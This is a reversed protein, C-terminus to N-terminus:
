ASIPERPVRNRQSGKGNVWKGGATIESRKGKRKGFETEGKTPKRATMMSGASVDLAGGASRLEEAFLFTKNAYM